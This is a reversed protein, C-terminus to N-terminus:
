LLENWLYINTEILQCSHLPNKLYSLVIAKSTDWLYLKKRRMLHQRKSLLSRLGRLERLIWIQVKTTKAICLHYKTPKTLYEYTGAHLRCLYSKVIYPCKPFRFHNSYLIQLHICNAQRYYVILENSHFYFLICEKWYPYSSVQAQCLICYCYFMSTSKLPSDMPIFERLFIM